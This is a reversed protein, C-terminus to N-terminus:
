AKTAIVVHRLCFPITLSWGIEKNNQNRIHALVNIQICQPPGSGYHNPIRARTRGRALGSIFDKLRRQQRGSNEM